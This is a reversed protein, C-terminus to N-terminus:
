EGKEDYCVDTHGESHAFRMPKRDVSMKRKGSPFISSSVHITKRRIISTKGRRDHLKGALITRIANHYTEHGTRKPRKRGTGELFSSAFFLSRLLSNPLIVM